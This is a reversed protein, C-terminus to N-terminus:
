LFLIYSWPIIAAFFYIAIVCKMARPLWIVQSAMLCLLFVIAIAISKTALLAPFLGIESILYKILFNGEAHVGYTNIGLGTLLGDGIQLLVLLMGLFMIERTPASDNQNSLLKGGEIVKLIAKSKLKLVANTM